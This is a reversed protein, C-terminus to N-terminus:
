ARWSGPDPPYPPLALRERVAPHAGWCLGAVMKVLFVTQRVLYLRHSAVALAHRDLARRPLLFSPLPVGITMVPTLTFVITGLVLGMWLLRTSERRYRRLFEDIGTDAIGPLDPSRPYLARMASLILWNV